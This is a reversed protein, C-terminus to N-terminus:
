HGQDGCRLDTRPRLIKLWVCVQLLVFIVFDGYVRFEIINLSLAKQLELQYYWIRIVYVYTWGFLSTVYLVGLLVHAHNQITNWFSLNYVNGHKRQKWQQLGICKVLM